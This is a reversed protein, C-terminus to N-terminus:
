IHILSLDLVKDHPLFDVVSLMALTGTDISHPSFVSPVTEFVMDVDKIRASIM